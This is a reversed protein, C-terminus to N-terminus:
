SNAYGQWLRAGLSLFLRNKQSPWSRTDGSWRWQPSAFSLGFYPSRFGTLHQPCTLHLQRWGFASIFLAVPIAALKIM